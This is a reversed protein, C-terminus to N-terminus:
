PRPINRLGDRVGDACREMGVKEYAKGLRKLRARDPRGVRDTSPSALVDLMKEHADLLDEPPDLDKLTAQYRRAEREAARVVEVRSLKRDGALAPLKLNFDSARRCAAEAKKTYEAKSMPSLGGCGGAVLLGALAVLGALRRREPLRM